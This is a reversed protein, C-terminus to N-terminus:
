YKEMEKKLAEEILTKDRKIVDKFAKDKLKLFWEMGRKEIMFETFGLPDNHASDKFFKHHGACLCCGNDLDYRLNYNTRGYIHHSQLFKTAGCRECKNGARLKVLKSWLILINKDTTL